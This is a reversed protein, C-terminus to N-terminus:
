TKPPRGKAFRTLAEYIPRDERIMRWITEDASNPKGLRAKLAAIADNASMGSDRLTEYILAVNGRRKRRRYKAFANMGARKLDLADAVRNAAEDSTLQRSNLIDPDRFDFGAALVGIRDAVRALYREVIPPMPGRANPPLALWRALSNWVFVPNRTTEGYAAIVHAGGPDPDTRDVTVAIGM